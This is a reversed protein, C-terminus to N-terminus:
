VGGCVLLETNTPLPAKKSLAGDQDVIVAIM